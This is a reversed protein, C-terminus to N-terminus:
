KLLGKRDAFLKDLRKKLPGGTAPKDIERGVQVLLQVLGEFDKMSITEAKVRPRNAGRRSPANAVKGAPPASDDLGGMNHYNGLPLCICAARYGYCQFASAECTGGPMLKRQWKFLPDEQGLAEAIKSIQYTLDPDFSSTRDGVRVIPGGGIPSEAFSRSNELTVLRSLKPIIGSKCAAIAGIFGVEEARTLLVRV